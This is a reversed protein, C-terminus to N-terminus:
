PQEKTPPKDAPPVPDPLPNDKLAEREQDETRGQPHIEGQALNWYFSEFSLAGTQLAQTLATLMAPALKYGVLDKNIATFNTDRTDEPAAQTGSWYSAWQLVRSLSHGAAEAIDILASAEASARLKVTEYAEADSSQATLPRAGLAAMQAEKTALAEKIPTLGAGTFELFGCKATPDDSVWANSMGLTLRTETDSTFGAAWPTPLGAIHLGHEYDAGLRYHSLNIESLDLLPPKEPSYGDVSTSHVVIPIATLPSGKRELTGTEIAVFQPAATPVVNTLEVAQDHKKRWVTWTVGLPVDNADRILRFERFQEYKKKTYADPAKEGTEARYQSSYERFVAFTLRTAGNVRAVDWNIFDPAEYHTLYPANATENWDIVTVARATRILSWLVTEAYNAFQTGQQDVDTLFDELGTEVETTPPKRTLMGLWADATRGTASYFPARLKYADYDEVKQGSIRPLYIEGAKRVAMAGECCDLVQQWEDRRADYDPHTTNVPM